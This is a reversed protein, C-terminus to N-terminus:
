EQPLFKDTSVSMMPIIIHPEGGSLQVVGNIPTWFVEPKALQLYEAVKIPLQITVFKKGVKVPAAYFRGAPLAKQKKDVATEKEKTTPM